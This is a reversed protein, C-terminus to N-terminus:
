SIQSETHRDESEREGDERTFSLIMITLMEIAQKHSLGFRRLMHQIPMLIYMQQHRGAQAAGSHTKGNQFM